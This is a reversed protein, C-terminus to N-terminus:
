LPPKIMGRHIMAHHNPCLPIISGDETHHHNIIEAHKHCIWCPEAHKQKNYKVLRQKLKEQCESCQSYPCGDKKIIVVKGCNRCLGQSKFSNRRDELQKKRKALCIDCYFKSNASFPRIGCLGCLGQERKGQRWKQNYAYSGM